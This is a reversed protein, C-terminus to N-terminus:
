SFDTLFSSFLEETWKPDVSALLGTYMQAFSLGHSACNYFSQIKLSAMDCFHMKKEQIAMERNNWM